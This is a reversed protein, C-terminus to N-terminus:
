SNLSFVGYKGVGPVGEEGSERGVEVASLAAGVEEL